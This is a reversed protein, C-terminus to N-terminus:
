KQKEGLIKEYKTFKSKLEDYESENHNGAGNAIPKNVGNASDVEEQKKQNNAIPKKMERPPV